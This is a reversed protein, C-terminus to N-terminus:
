VNMKNLDTSTSRSLKGTTNKEIIEPILNEIVQRYFEMEHSSLVNGCRTFVRRQLVPYYNGKWLMTMGNNSKGNYAKPIFFHSILSGFSKDTASSAAQPVVRNITNTIFTDLQQLFTDMQKQTTQYCVLSQPNKFLGTFVQGEREAFGIYGRTKESTDNRVTTKMYEGTTNMGNVIRASDQTEKKNKARKLIDMQFQPTLQLSGKFAKSYGIDSGILPLVTQMATFFNMIKDPNDDFYAVNIDRKVPNFIKQIDFKVTNPNSNYKGFINYVANFNKGSQLYKNLSYREGSLGNLIWVKNQDDTWPLNKTKETPKASSDPIADEFLEKKYQSYAMEYFNTEPPAANGGNPINSTTGIHAANKSMYIMQNKIDKSIIESANSGMVENISKAYVSSLSIIYNKRALNIDNKSNMLASKGLDATNQIMQIASTGKDRHKFPLLIGWNLWGSDAKETNVLSWDVGDVSPVSFGNIFENGSGTAMDSTNTKGNEEATLNDVSTNMPNKAKETEPAKLPQINLGFGASRLLESAQILIEKRSNREINLLCTLNKRNKWGADALVVIRNLYNKLKKIALAKNGTKIIGFVIYLVGALGATLLGAIWKLPGFIKGSDRIWDFPGTKNASWWNAQPLISEDLKDDSFSSFGNKKVECNFNEVMENWEKDKSLDVSYTKLLNEKWKELREPNKLVDETLHNNKFYM